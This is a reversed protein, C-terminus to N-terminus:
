SIPSNQYLLVMRRCSLRVERNRSAIGAGRTRAFGVQVSRGSDGAKEVEPSPKCALYRNVLAGSGHGSGSPPKGASRRGGEVDPGPARISVSEPKSVQRQGCSFAASPSSLLGSSSTLANLRPLRVERFTPNRRPQFSATMETPHPNWSCMM